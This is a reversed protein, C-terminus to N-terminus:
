LKARLKKDLEMPIKSDGKIFHGVYDFNDVFLFGLFALIALMILIIIIKFATHSKLNWDEPYISWIFGLGGCLSIFWIFYHSWNKLEM